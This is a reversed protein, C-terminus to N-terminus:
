QPADRVNKRAAALLEAYEPSLADELAIELGAHIDSLVRQEAADELPLDGAEDRHALWEFLVLAEDNSLEISVGDIEDTGHTEDADADPGGTIDDSM